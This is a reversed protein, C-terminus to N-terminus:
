RAGETKKIARRNQIKEMLRKSDRNKKTKADEHALNYDAILILKDNTPLAEFWFPQQRWHRSIALGM